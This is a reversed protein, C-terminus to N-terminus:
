VHIRRRSKIWLANYLQILRTEAVKDRGTLRWIPQHVECAEQRHKGPYHTYRNLNHVQEEYLIDHTKAPALYELACTRILISLLKTFTKSIYSPIITFIKRKGQQLVSRFEPM